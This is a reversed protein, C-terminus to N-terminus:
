EITQSEVARELDIAIALAEMDTMVHSPQGNYYSIETERSEDRMFLAHRSAHENQAGVVIEYDWAASVAFEGVAKSISITPLAHEPHSTLASYEIGFIASQIKGDAEYSGANDLLIQAAKKVRLVTENYTPNNMICNYVYIIINDITVHDNSAITNSLHQLFPTAKNDFVFNDFAKDVFVSM